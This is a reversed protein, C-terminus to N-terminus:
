LPNIERLGPKQTHNHTAYIHTTRENIVLVAKVVIIPLTRLNRVKHTIKRWLWFIQEDYDDDDEIKNIKLIL